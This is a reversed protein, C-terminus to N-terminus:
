YIFCSGNQGKEKDVYNNGSLKFKFSYILLEEILNNIENEQKINIEKYEFDIKNEDIIKKIKEKNLIIEKEKSIMGIVCFKKDLDCHDKVYNMIIELKETSESNELDIFLLYCNVDAIGTYEKYFDLISCIMIQISNKVGPLTGSFAISHKNKKLISHKHFKLYINILDIPTNNNENTSFAVIQIKEIKKQSM